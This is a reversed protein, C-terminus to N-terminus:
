GTTITASTPFTQFCKLGFSGVAFATNMPSNTMFSMWLQQKVLVLGLNKLDFFASVCQLYYGKKALEYQLFFSGSKKRLYEECCSYGKQITHEKKLINDRRGCCPRQSMHADAVNTM